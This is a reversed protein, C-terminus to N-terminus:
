QRSMRGPLLRMRLSHNRAIRLRASRVRSVGASDVYIGAGDDARSRTVRSEFPYALLLTFTGLLLAGVVFAALCIAWCVRTVNSPNEM